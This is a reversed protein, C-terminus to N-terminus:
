DHNVRGHEERAFRNYLWALLGGMASGDDSESPVLSGRKM